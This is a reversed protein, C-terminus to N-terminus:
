GELPGMPRTDHVIETTPMQPAPPQTPATPQPTAAAGPMQPMPLAPAPSPQVTIVQKEPTPATQIPAPVNIHVNQPVVAQPPPMPVNITINQPAPTPAPSPAPSPASEAKATAKVEAKAKSEKLKSKLSAIMGEMAVDIVVVIILVIVTSIELVGSLVNIPPLIGVTWDTASYITAVFSAGAASMGFLKLVIRVILFFEIVKFIGDVVNDVIDLPDEYMFGTIIESILIGAVAYVVVGLITALDFTPLIGPNIFDRFPSVLLDSPGLILGVIANSRDAQFLILFFRLVLLSVIIGTIVLIIGRVKRRAESM